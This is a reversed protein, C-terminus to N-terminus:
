AGEVEEPWLKAIAAEVHQPDALYFRVKEGLSDALLAEAPDWECPALVDLAPACVCLTLPVAALAPDWVCVIM